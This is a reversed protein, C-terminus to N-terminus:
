LKTNQEIKKLILDINNDIIKYGNLRKQIKVSKVLIAIPVAEGKKISKRGTNAREQRKFSTLDKTNEKNNYAFVYVKGNVEKFFANKSALLNSIVQKFKGAKMRKDLLPILMGGGKSKIIAGEQHTWLWHERSYFQLLPFSTKRNNYLKSTILNPFSKSNVKLNQKVNNRLITKIEKSAQEMGVATSRNLEKTLDKKFADFLNPKFLGDLKIDINM